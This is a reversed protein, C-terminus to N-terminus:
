NLSHIYDRYVCVTCINILITCFFWLQFLVKRFKHEFIQQAFIAFIWGGVLGLLLLYAESTRWRKRRADEKDRFYKVMTFVNVVIVYILIFWLSYLYTYGITFISAAVALQLYYADTTPGLMITHSKERKSIYLIICKTFIQKISYYFNGKSKNM